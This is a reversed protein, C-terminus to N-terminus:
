LQRWVDDPGLTWSDGFLWEGNPGQTVDEPLAPGPMHGEPGMMLRASFFWVAVHRLALFVVIGAAFILLWFACVYGLLLIFGVLHALPAYWHFSRVGFFLYSGISFLGALFVAGLVLWSVYWSLSGLSSQKWAWWAGWVVVASIGLILEVV